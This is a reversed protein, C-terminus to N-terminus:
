SFKNTRACVCTQLVEFIQNACLIKKGGFAVSSSFFKIVLKGFLAPIHLNPMCWKNTLQQILNCPINLKLKQKTFVWCKLFIINVLLLLTIYLMNVEVLIDVLNYKMM